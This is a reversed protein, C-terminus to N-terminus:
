GEAPSDMEVRSRLDGLERDSLNFYELVDTRRLLGHREAELLVEAYGTGWERLRVAPATNDNSFGTNGKFDAQADVREYLGPVARDIHEIRLAATRLSVRFHKAARSVESTSAIARTGFTRDLYQTLDARPMLFAAAFREFRREEDSDPVHSCISGSRYVLHAFEHIYSFIRAETTYASNVAIVPALDDLLSFGRCGIPSMPLQLVLIGAAELRSRLLRAAVTPSSSAFQDQVRWDLFRRARTLTKGLRNPSDAQGPIPIPESDLQERTWRAVRQLREATQIGRLEVDLLERAGTKGPPHRFAKVVPNDAPPTELFYISAPRRLRAVLKTFQTKTPHRSGARWAAVDANRVKCHRALVADSVGAQGMAWQLVAGNIPVFTAKPM